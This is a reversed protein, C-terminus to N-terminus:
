GRGVRVTPKGEGRPPHGGEAALPVGWLLPYNHSLAACHPSNGMLAREKSYRSFHAAREGTVHLESIGGRQNGGKWSLPAGGM